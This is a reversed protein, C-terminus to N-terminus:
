NDQARNDQARIDRRELTRDRSRLMNQQTIINVAGVMAAIKLEEDKSQNWTNNCLLLQLDNILIYGRCEHGKKRYNHVTVSEKIFDKVHNDVAAAYAAVIVTTWIFYTLFM